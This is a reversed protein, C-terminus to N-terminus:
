TLSTVIGILWQSIGFLIISLLVMFSFGKKTRLEIPVIKNLKDPFLYVTQVLLGIIITFIAAELSPAGKTFHLHIGSFGAGVTYLGLFTSILWYSVPMYGFDKSYCRISKDNFTGIRLFMGVLPYVMSVAGGLGFWFNGTDFGLALMGFFFMPSLLAFIVVYGQYSYNFPSRTPTMGYRKDLSRWHFIFIYGSLVSPIYVAIFFPFYNLRMLLGVFGYTFFYFFVFLFLSSSLFQIRREQNNRLKSAPKFTLHWIYKFDLKM